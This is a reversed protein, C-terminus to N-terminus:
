RAGLTAAQAAAASFLVNGSQIYTMVETCGEQEFVAKLDKMPLKNKGGVNIGRLWAAYTAM